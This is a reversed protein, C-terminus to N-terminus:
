RGRARSIEVEGRSIEAEGTLDRGGGTLDRAGGTLDRDCRRGAPNLEALGVGDLRDDVVCLERLHVVHALGLVLDLERPEERWDVAEELALPREHPGEVGLRDVSIHACVSIDQSM